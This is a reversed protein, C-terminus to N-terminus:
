TGETGNQEKPPESGYVKEMAAVKLDQRSRSYEEVLMRWDHGLQESATRIDVGKELMEMGGTRRFAHPGMHPVNLHRAFHQIRNTIRRPSIPRKGGGLVFGKGRGILAKLSPSLAVWRYGNDSKTRERVILKGEIDLVVRKIWVGPGDLDEHKLGAAESRRLAAERTLLIMLKLEDDAKQFEAKVSEREDPSLPRRRSLEKRPLDIRAPNGAAKLLQHIWGLRKRLTVRGSKFRRKFDALDSPTCEGVPVDGLPDKELSRIWSDWTSLTSPSLNEAAKNNRWARAFTTFSQSPRANRADLSIWLRRFAEEEAQKRSPYDNPDLYPKGAYKKGKLTIVARIKGNPLENISGFGPPRRAKKRKV